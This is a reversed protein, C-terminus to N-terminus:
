KKTFRPTWQVLVAFALLILATIWGGPTFYEPLYLGIVISGGLLLTALLGFEWMGYLFIFPMYHVGLVLMFAPYFWNINYLSAAGILPLCLPVIFAIQMALGNFPHGKKLSSPRGLLRLTLQTLPFILMGGIILVLIASSEETWDGLSASLLWILGSVMQGVTGRVFINQVDKQAADINMSIEKGIVKMM